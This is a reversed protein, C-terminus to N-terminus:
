PKRRALVIQRAVEFMEAFPMEVSGEAASIRVKLPDGITERIVYISTGNASMRLCSYVGNTDMAVSEM